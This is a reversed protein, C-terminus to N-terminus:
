GPRRRARLIVARQGPKAPVRGVEVRVQALGEGGAGTAARLICTLVWYHGSVQRLIEMWEGKTVGAKACAISPEM